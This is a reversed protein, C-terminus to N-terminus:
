EQAGASEESEAGSAAEEGSDDVVTDDVVTDDVVTDDAVTDPEVEPEEEPALFSVTAQLSDIETGATDKVVVKIPWDREIPPRAALTLEEAQTQSQPKLHEEPTISDVEIATEEEEDVMFKVLDGHNDFVELTVGTDEPFCEDPDFNYRYNLTLIYETPGTEDEAPEKLSGAPSEVAVKPLAWMPQGDRSGLAYLRGDLTSIYVTGDAFTPAAVLKSSLDEQWLVSGNSPDIGFVEGDGSGVVLVGSEGDYGLCGAVPKLDALPWEHDSDEDDSDEPKEWRKEGSGKAVAVLKGESSVDIVSDETLVPTSNIFGGLDYTWVVDGSSLELKRIAGGGTAAYLFGEEAVAPVALYGELHQFSVKGAISTPEKAPESCGLTFLGLVLLIAYSLTKRMM